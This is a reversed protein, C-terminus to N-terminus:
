RRPNRDRFSQIGRELRALGEELTAAPVGCGIRIHGPLGFFEGPVVDVQHEKALHESLAITDEVGEIKPFAIIGFEPVICRIGETRTLWREWMPRSEREIVRLPRLLDSLRDLAFRGARLIATPPDVYSLYAMDVLHQRERALGEGLVIWGIRMPGLGYAKTLSGISIGNPAVDFAHVRRESPVYEMYVECSILNGGAREAAKALAAMRERELLVGTPNHLNALFVHGRPPGGTPGGTSRNTGSGSTGSRSAGGGGSGLLGGVEGPDIQWGDELRRRVPRFDAGLYMPLSRFPEYSPVDAVVRTGPRFYRLACLHMGGSAGLAVIVRERDVGFLEALRGELEPLAERAPHDLDFRGLAELFSPEAMPMGSQSLSWSSRAAHTHAWVMYPFQLREAESM